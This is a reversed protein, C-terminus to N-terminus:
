SLVKRDLDAAQPRRERVARRARYGYFLASPWVSAISLLASLTRGREAPPIRKLCELAGAGDGGALHVRAEAFLGERRFRRVQTDIAQVEPGDPPCQPRIERFVRVIGALMRREDASVSDPRRRYYGRPTLDVAFRCGAAAARLWFHYDENGRFTEDFGGTREVVSRRFVSMIHVADEHVIMDLLSLDRIEDSPPWYPTGDFRGGLNIANSTIVDLDPRSTLTSVHHELFDPTWRDDSDLLAFFEGCALAIARNRAASPGGNPTRLVRIRPDDLAFREAIAATEDTSGDDVILLQFAAYSQALCSEITEALHAEANFAPTVISVLAARAV